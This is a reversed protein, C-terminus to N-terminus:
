VIQIDHIIPRAIVLPLPKQILVHHHNSSTGATSIREAVEDDDNDNITSLSPPPLLLPPTPPPTQTERDASVRPLEEEEEEGQHDWFQTSHRERNFLITKPSSFTTNNDRLRNGERKLNITIRSMM